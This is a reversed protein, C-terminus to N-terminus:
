MKPPEKIYEHLIKHLQMADAARAEDGNLKGNVFDDVETVGSNFTMM